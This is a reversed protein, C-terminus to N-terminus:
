AVVLFYSWGSDANVNTTDKSTRRFDARIRFQGNPVTSLGFKMSAQSSGSLKTCNSISDFQWAGDAYEDIEFAVCGKEHPAVTSGAALTGAEQYVRYLTKGVYASGYYGSISEGVGARVYVIRQVTASQYESNGWFDVTFTTSYSPVYRVSLAGSPDLLGIRLLHDTKSGFSQAYVSVIQGASARGLHATVFVAARYNVTRASVSV